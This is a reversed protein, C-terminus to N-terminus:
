RFCAFVKKRQTKKMKEDNRRRKKGNKRPVAAADRRCFPLGARKSKYMTKTTNAYRNKISYIFLLLVSSSPFFVNFSHVFLFKNKKM